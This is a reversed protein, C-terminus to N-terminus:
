NAGGLLEPNDHINGIIEFEYGNYNEHFSGCWQGNGVEFAGDFWVVVGYGDDETYDCGEVIDGEFIRKGNKDQLGTYQGVTTPDVQYCESFEGGGWHETTTPLIFCDKTKDIVLCGEVRKGNAIRKGRFLIERM